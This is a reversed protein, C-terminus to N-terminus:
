SLKDLDIPKRLYHLASVDFADFVRSDDATIFVIMVDANGKRIKRAVEVGDMGPLGIDLFLLDFAQKVFSEFLVEGTDFCLVEGTKDRKRVFEEIQDRIIPEDDCIAVRM